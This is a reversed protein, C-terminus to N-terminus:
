LKQPFSEKKRIPVFGKCKNYAIPMGFIFGRSEPAVVVDYEVDSLAADM